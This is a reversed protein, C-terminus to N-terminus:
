GRCAAVSYACGRVHASRRAQTEEVAIDRSVKMQSGVFDQPVIPFALACSSFSIHLHCM